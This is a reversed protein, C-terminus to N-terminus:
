LLTEQLRIRRKKMIRWGKININKKKENDKVRCLVESIDKISWLNCNEKLFLIVEILVLIMGEM